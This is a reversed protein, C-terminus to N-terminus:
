ESETFGSPSTHMCVRLLGSKMYLYSGRLRRGLDTVLNGLKFVTLLNLIM